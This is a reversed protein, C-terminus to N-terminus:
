QRKEIWEKAEKLLTFSGCVVVCASKASELACAVSQSEACYKFYKKCANSIIELKAARPSPCEVATVKEAVGCLMRLNGELDKDDLCGFIIEVQGNLGSIYNILPAFASPNHAGDLIYRVGNARIVELRGGLKAQKVGYYIATEPIKLYRAAEIALAANYPQVSGMIGNEFEANGYIFHGDDIIRIPKDAFSAGANKFYRVAKECQLASVIVKCNKIIGSKHACISEISNGLVGTHELSVSTILALIKGCVANTADYTGGLGCELVAYECGCLFFAYIAAATEVEFQTASGALKLAAGFARDYTQEDINKGNIKFQELYDYVAPSCFTGVTKGCCLLIRTMYEAVSGKGNSGSIHIIKLKKDPCGLGDLIKRVRELGFDMGRKSLSRVCNLTTEFSM